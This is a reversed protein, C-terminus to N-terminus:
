KIILVLLERKFNFKKKNLKSYIKVFNNVEIAWGMHLGFGM